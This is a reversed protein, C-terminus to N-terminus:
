RVALYAVLTTIAVLAFVTMVAGVCQSVRLLGRRDPALEGADMRALEANSYFWCLPAALTIGLALVILGAPAIWSARPLAAVPATSTSPWPLPAQGARGGAALGWWVAAPDATPPPSRPTVTGPTSSATPATSAHM